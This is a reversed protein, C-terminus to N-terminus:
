WRVKPVSTKRQGQPPRREMRARWEVRLAASSRRVESPKRRGDRSRGGAVAGGSSSRKRQCGAATGVEVTGAEGRGEGGAGGEGGARVGGVVGDM